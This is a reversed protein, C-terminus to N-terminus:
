RRLLLCRQSLPSPFRQCIQQMISRFVAVSFLLPFFQFMITMRCLVLVSVMESYFDPETKFRENLAIIEDLTNVPKFDEETMKTQLTDAVAPSALNPLADILFDVKKHLETIQETQLQIMSLLLSIDNPAWTGDTVVESQTLSNPETMYVLQATGSQSQPQLQYLQSSSSPTLSPPQVTEYVVTGTGGHRQQVYNISQQQAQSPIVFTGGGHQQQVHINSQQQAQPQPTFTGDAVIQQETYNTMQQPQLQHAPSAAPITGTRHLYNTQQSQSSSVSTM